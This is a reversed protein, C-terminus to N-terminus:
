QIFLYGNAKVIYPMFRKHGVSGLPRHGSYEQACPQEQISILGCCGHLREDLYTEVLPMILDFEVGMDLGWRLPHKLKQDIEIMQM